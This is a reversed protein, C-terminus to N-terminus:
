LVNHRMLTILIEALEADAPFYYLYREHIKSQTNEDNVGSM